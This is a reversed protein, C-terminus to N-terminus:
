LVLIQRMSVSMNICMLVHLIECHVNLDWLVYMSAGSYVSVDGIMTTQSMVALLVECCTVTALTLLRERDCASEDCM